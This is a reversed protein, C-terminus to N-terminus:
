VQLANRALREAREGDIAHPEDEFPEGVVEDALAQAAPLDHQAGFAIGRALARMMDQEAIDSKVARSGTAQKSGSAGALAEGNSVGACGRDDFADAVMAALVHGATRHEHQATGALVEASAHGAANSPHEIFIAAENGLLTIM